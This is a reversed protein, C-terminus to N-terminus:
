YIKSTNYYIYCSPNVHYTSRPYTLVSSNSWQGYTLYNMSRMTNSGTVIGVHGLSSANNSPFVVIAGTKQTTGVYSAGLTNRANTCWDKANGSWPLYGNGKVKAVGSTCWGGPFTGAIAVTATVALVCSFLSTRIMKKKTTM